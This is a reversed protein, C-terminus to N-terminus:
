PKQRGSASAREGGGDARFAMPGVPKHKPPQVVGFAYEKMLDIIIREDPTLKM